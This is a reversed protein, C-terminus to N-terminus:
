EPKKTATHKKREKRSGVVIAELGNWEVGCKEFQIEL